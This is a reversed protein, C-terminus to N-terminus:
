IVREAYPKGGQERVHAGGIRVAADWSKVLGPEQANDFTGSYKQPGVPRYGCNSCRPSYGAATHPISWDKITCPRDPSPALLSTGDFVPEIVPRGAIDPAQPTGPAEPSTTPGNRNLRRLEQAEVGFGSRELLQAEQENPSIYGLLWPAERIASIAIPGGRSSITPEPLPELPKPEPEPEKASTFRGAAGHGQTPNGAKRKGTFFDDALALLSKKRPEAEAKLLAKKRERYARQKAANSEYTPM